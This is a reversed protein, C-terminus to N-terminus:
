VPIYISITYSRIATKILDEDTPAKGTIRSTNSDQVTIHSKMLIMYDTIRDYLCKYSRARCPKQSTIHSKLFRFLRIVPM